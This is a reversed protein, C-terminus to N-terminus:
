KGYFKGGELFDSLHVGNLYDSIVQDLEQWMGFSRCSAINPCAQQSCSVPSLDGEVIKLITGVRYEEPPMCLRYGGGKGRLSQLQQHAVLVKLISNLYEKSINQRDAIEQLPIYSDTPHEALDLMVRLAYRGKTSVIVPCFRWIFTNVGNYVISCDKYVSM